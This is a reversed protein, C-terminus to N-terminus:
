REAGQKQSNYVKFHKYCCMKYGNKTPTGCNAWQHCDPYDCESEKMPKPDPWGLVEFAYEMASIAGSSLLPIGIGDMQMGYQYALGEICEILEKKTYKSKRNM